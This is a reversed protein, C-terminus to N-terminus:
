DWPVEKYAVLLTRLGDKAYNDLFGMTKELQVTQNSLLRPAIISDAGKCMVIIRGEEDKVIITMRKRASSFEIVNLLQYKRETGHIKIIINDDEDRGVFEWNFFKAANVLALEDPSSANYYIEGNKEEVVITHCIALLEFFKELYFANDHNPDKLHL